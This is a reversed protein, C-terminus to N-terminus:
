RIIDPTSDEFGHDAAATRRQALWGSVRPGGDVAGGERVTRVYEFGQPFYYWQLAENATVCRAAAM